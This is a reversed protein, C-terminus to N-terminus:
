CAATYDPDAEVRQGSFSRLVPSRMSRSGAQLNAAACPRALFGASVHCNGSARRQVIVNPKPLEGTSTAAILCEISVPGDCDLLVGPWSNAARLEM